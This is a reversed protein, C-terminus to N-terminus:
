ADDLLRRQGSLKQIETIDQVTELCGIYRGGADRVPWYRIHAKKDGLDIWFEAVDRRGAKFDELIRNVLHVSKGPHCNQVKMGIVGRSRPFIKPHNEHSFYRVTDEADVFSLEVPLANLIAGLVDYGLGYVLDKVKGSAIIKDALGYFRERTNPGVSDEAKEIGAVILQNDEDSMVKKAMPYLIDNEKWFHNKLLDTYELFVSKLESVDTSKDSVYSDALPKLKALLERSKEHEQLMVALPGGHRSVGRKEILPFLHEEEKKNHCGDVYGIFYEMINVILEKDPGEEGEFAKQGAEFVKETTEHDLMLLEAWKQTVDIEKRSM